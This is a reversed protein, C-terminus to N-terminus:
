LTTETPVDPSYMSTEPLDDDTIHERPTGLPTTSAYASIETSAKLMAKISELEATQKELLSKLHSIQQTDETVIHPATRTRKNTPKAAAEKKEFVPKPANSLYVKWFWPEDYMVQINKGDLLAQKVQQIETKKSWFKMHIFVRKFREGSDNTKNVMDIRDVKGFGAEEFADKVRKWTINPFVRPICMSPNATNVTVSKTTNSSASAM